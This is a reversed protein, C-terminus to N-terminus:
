ELSRPSHRRLPHRRKAAFFREALEQVHDYKELHDKLEDSNATDGVSPARNRDVLPVLKERLSPKMGVGFPAKPGGRLQLAM